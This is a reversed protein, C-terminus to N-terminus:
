KRRSSSRVGSSCAATRSMAAVIFASRYPWRGSAPGRDTATTKSFGDSRVRTDNSAPMASSPPCGITMSARAVWKPRPSVTSSAARTSDRYTAAITIRDSESGRRAARAAAAVTGTTFARVSPNWGHWTSASRSVTRSRSPRVCPCVRANRPSMALLMAWEYRRPPAVAPMCTRSAPGSPNAGSGATSRRAAPIAARVPPETSTPVSGAFATAPASTTAVSVHVDM